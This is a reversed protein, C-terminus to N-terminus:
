VIPGARSARKSSPSATSVVGLAGEKAWRDSQGRNRRWHEILGEVVAAGVWLGQHRHDQLVEGFQGEQGGDQDAIM